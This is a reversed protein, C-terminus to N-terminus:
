LCQTVTKDLEAKNHKLLNYYKDKIQVQTLDDTDIQNWHEEQALAHDAFCVITFFLLVLIMYNKM